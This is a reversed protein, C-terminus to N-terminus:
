AAHRATLRRNRWVRQAVFLALLILLPYYVYSSWFLRLISYGFFKQTRQVGALSSFYGDNSEGVGLSLLYQGYNEPTSIEIRYTGPEVAATLPPSQLLSIGLTAASQSLWQEPEPQLRAVETVGGGRQNQRVAILSFDVPTGDPYDRQRVQAQLTFPQDSTIEYMIPSGALEGLYDQQQYIAAEVTIVEYPQATQSIIPDFAAVSSATLLFLFVSLLYQM